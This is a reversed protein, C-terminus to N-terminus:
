SLGCMRPCFSEPAKFGVRHLGAACDLDNLSPLLVAEQAALRRSESGLRRTTRMLRSERTAQSCHRRPGLDNLSPHLLVPSDDLEM